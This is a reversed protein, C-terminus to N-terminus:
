LKSANYNGTLQSTPLSLASLATISSLGTLQSAPLALASLATISTLNSLKSANYAGTLQSTPLSLASLTTITSLGTLQSAPLALASLATISSLGTLQSAPISSSTTLYTDPISKLCGNLATTIWGSSDTILTQPRGTSSTTLYNLNALYTDLDALQTCVLTKDPVVIGNKLKKVGYVTQDRLINVSSQSPLSSGLM